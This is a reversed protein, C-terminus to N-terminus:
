EIIYVYYKWFTNNNTLQRLFHCFSWAVFPLIYILIILIIGLIDDVQAFGRQFPFPLWGPAQYNSTEGENERMTDDAFGKM